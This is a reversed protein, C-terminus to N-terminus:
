PSPFDPPVTPSQTFQERLRLKSLQLIPIVILVENVKQSIYIGYHLARPSMM